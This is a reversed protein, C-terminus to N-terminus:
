EELLELQDDESRLSLDEDKGLKSYESLLCDGIKSAAELVVEQESEKESGAKHNKVPRV